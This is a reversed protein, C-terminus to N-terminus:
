LIILALEERQLDIHVCSNANTLVTQEERRNPNQICVSEGVNPSIGPLRPNDKSLYRWPLVISDSVGTSVKLVITLLRVTVVQPNEKPPCPVDKHGPRKPCCPKRHARSCCMSCRQHRKM